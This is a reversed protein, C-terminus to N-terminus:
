LFQLLMKSFLLAPYSKGRFTESLFYDSDPICESGLWCKIHVKKRFYNIVKWRLHKVPNQSHRQGQLLYLFLNLGEYHVQKSM